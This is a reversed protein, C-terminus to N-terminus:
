CAAGRLKLSIGSDPDFGHLREIPMHCVLQDGARASAPSPLEVNFRREGHAMLLVDRDGCCERDVVEAPLRLAPEGERAQLRIDEPRIGLTLRAPRPGGAPLSVPLGSQPLDDLRLCGDAGDLSAPFFNMPSEGIFAAVFLNAPDDYLERPSGIQQLVGHNMVAIRDAMAMAETQDHTVLVSTLGASSQLRRIETRLMVKQDADLHSLPEDFMVLAPDRVLARGISVRQQAGGSLTRVPVGAVSQLGLMEIAENVKRAVEAAPTRRVKLPFAINEWASMHPYLSYDEFVMAINRGASDLPTVDFGDFLIEGSTVTEIGAVMKLTSSKGCGSPGLLALMQGQPCVLDLAQVALSRGDYSKTVQNLRVEAM